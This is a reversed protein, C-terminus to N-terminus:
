KVSSKEFIEPAARQVSSKINKGLIEVKLLLPQQSDDM